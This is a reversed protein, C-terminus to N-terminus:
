KDTPNDRHRMKESERLILSFMIFICEYMCVDKIRNEGLTPRERAREGRGRGIHSSRWEKTRAEVEKSTRLKRYLHVRGVGLRHGGTSSM